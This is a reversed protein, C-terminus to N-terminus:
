CLLVGSGVSSGIVSPIGYRLMSLFKSGVVSTVGSNVMSLIVSGVVSPIDFGGM